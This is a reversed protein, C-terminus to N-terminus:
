GAFEPAGGIVDATRRAIGRESIIKSLIWVLPIVTGVGRVEFATGGSEERMQVTAKTLGKSVKLGDGDPEVTYGPGLGKRIVDAVQDLSLDTRNVTVNHM